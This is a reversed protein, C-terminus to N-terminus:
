ELMFSIPSADFNHWASQLYSVSCLGGDKQARGEVVTEPRFAETHKFLVLESTSPPPKLEFCVSAKSQM